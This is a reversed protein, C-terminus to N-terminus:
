SQIKPDSQSPTPSRSPDSQSVGRESTQVGDSRLDEGSVSDEGSAASSQERRTQEATELDQRIAERDKESESVGIVDEVEEVWLDTNMLCSVGIHDSYKPPTFIMGTHPLAFHEDLVWQEVEPTGSGDFPAARYQDNATVALRRAPASTYHPWQERQADSPTTVHEVLAPDIM